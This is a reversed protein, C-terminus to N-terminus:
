KNRVFKAAESRVEPDPDSEIVKALFVQTDLSEYYGLIYRLLTKRNKASTEDAFLEVLARGAEPVKIQSLGNAIATRAKPDSETRYWSQFDPVKGRAFDPDPHMGLALGAGKYASARARADTVKPIVAAVSEYVAQQDYLHALLYYDIKELPVASAKLAELVPKTLTEPKEARLVGAIMLNFVDPDSERRLWELIRAEKDDSLATGPRLLKFLYGIKDEVTLSDWPPIEGREAYAAGTSGIRQALGSSDLFVTAASNRSTAWKPSGHTTGESEVKRTPDPEVTDSSPAGSNEPQKGETTSGGRDTSRDSTSKDAGSSGPGRLGGYFRVLFGAGVILLPIGLLIWPRHKM